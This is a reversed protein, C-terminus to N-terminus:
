AVYGGQLSRGGQRSSLYEMVRRHLEAIIRKRDEMLVVDSFGRAVISHAFPSPYPLPGVVRVRVRGEEIWSLVREANEVDMYDELIERYTERVVPSDPYERLMIELLHQASLQLREPSKEYGKYRRLIM